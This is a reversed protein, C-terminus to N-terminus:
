LITAVKDVPDFVQKVLSCARNAASHDKSVDTALKVVLELM